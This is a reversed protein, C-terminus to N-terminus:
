DGRGHLNHIEAVQRRRRAYREGEDPAGAAFERVIDRAIEIGIVRGGLCLVNADNHARAMRATYADGCLAAVAGVVKNAAVSMGVGTGCILIGLDVEGAAAAEAVPVAYGPYDCSETSHTGIDDVECGLEDRLYPVLALKLDLGAHDSAIRIKM